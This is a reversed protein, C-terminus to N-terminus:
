SNDSDHVAPNLLSRYMAEYRESLPQVALTSFVWERGRKGREARNQPNDLLKRIEAAFAEPTREAIIAGADQLEKWIDTGKTTIVPTGCALSEALVLGFNEQLTPLVFVDAAQYLSIKQEGTVLGLFRVRSVLGLELVLNRLDNEYAAEGTGAILTVAEVGTDRLLGTARILVDVGKKEHLRSLFLLKQQKQVPPELLCM